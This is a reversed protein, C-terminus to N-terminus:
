LVCAIHSWWRLIVALNLVVIISSRLGESGQNIMTDGKLGLFCCCTELIKSQDPSKYPSLIKYHIELQKHRPQSNLVMNIFFKSLYGCINLLYLINSLFRKYIGLTQKPECDYKDLEKTKPSKTLSSVQLSNM